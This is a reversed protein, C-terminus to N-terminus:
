RGIGPLWCCGQTCDHDDAAADNDNYDGSDDGDDNYDDDDYDGAHENKMMLMIMVIGPLHVVCLAAPLALWHQPFLRLHEGKDLHLEGEDPHLEGEDLHLEGEDLQHDEEQDLHLQGEDLLLHGGDDLHVRRQLQLQEGQHM